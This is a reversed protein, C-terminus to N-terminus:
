VVNENMHEGPHLGEPLGNPKCRLHYVGVHVRGEGISVCDTERRQRSSNCPLSSTRLAPLAQVGHPLGSSDRM